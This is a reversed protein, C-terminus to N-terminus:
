YFHNNFPNQEIKFYKAVIRLRIVATTLHIVCDNLLGLTGWQNQRDSALQSLECTAIVYNQSMAVTTFVLCNGLVWIRILHSHPHQSPNYTQPSTM